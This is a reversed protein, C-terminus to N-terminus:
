LLGRADSWVRVCANDIARRFVHAAEFIELTQASFLMRRTMCDVLGQMRLHLAADEKQPFSELNRVLTASLILLVSPLDKDTSSLLCQEADVCFGALCFYHGM